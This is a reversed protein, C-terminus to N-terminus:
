THFFLYALMPEDSSRRGGMRVDAQHRKRRNREDVDLPEQRQAAAIRKAPVLPLLQGLGALTFLM